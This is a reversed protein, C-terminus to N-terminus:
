GHGVRGVARAGAVPVAALEPKASFAEVQAGLPRYSDTICMPTGFETAFANAM